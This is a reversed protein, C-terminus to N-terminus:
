RPERSENWLKGAFRAVADGIDIAPTSFDSLNCIEMAGISKSWIPGWEPLYLGKKLAPADPHLWAVLVLKERGYLSTRRM